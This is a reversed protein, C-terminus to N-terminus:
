NELVNFLYEMLTSLGWVKPSTVGFVNYVYDRLLNM